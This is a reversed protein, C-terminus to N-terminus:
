LHRKERRNPLAYAWAPPNEHHGEVEQLWQTAIPQDPALYFSGEGRGRYPIIVGLTLIPLTEDISVARLTWKERDLQGSTLRLHHPPLQSGKMDLAMIGDLDPEGRLPPYAEADFRQEEGARRWLPRIRPSAQYLGDLLTGLDTIAAVLADESASEEGLLLRSLAQRVTWDKKRFQTVDIPTRLVFRPNQMLAAYDPTASSVENAAAVGRAAGM